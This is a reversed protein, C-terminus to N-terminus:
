KRQDNRRARRHHFRWARGGSGCGACGSRRNGFGPVLSGCAEADTLTPASVLDGHLYYSTARSGPHGTERVPPAELHFTVALDSLPAVAYNVADSIFEAGPPIVAEVSGDFTLPRDGAPDIAPSSPSVPRAIHVSTVRLAIRESPMPSICGCRRGAWPSTFFRGCLQM